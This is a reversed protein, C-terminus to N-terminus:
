TFKRIKQINDGHDQKRNTTRDVIKIVGSLKNFVGHKGFGLFGSTIETESNNTARGLTTSGTLFKSHVPEPSNSYSKPTQPPM